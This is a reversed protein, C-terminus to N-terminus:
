RSEGDPRGYPGFLYRARRLAQPRNLYAGMDSVDRSVLGYVSGGNAAREGADLPRFYEGQEEHWVAVAYRTRGQEDTYKHVYQTFDRKSGPKTRM